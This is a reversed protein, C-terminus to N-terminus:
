TVDDNKRKSNQVNGRTNENKLNRLTRFGHSVKKTATEDDVEVWGVGDDRLFRGSESQILKVIEASVKQKETHGAQEYMTIREIVIKKLRLNGVHSYYARGRGLLVDKQGPTGVRIVHAKALKEACKHEVEKKLLQELIRRKKWRDVSLCALTVGDEMMPFGHTPIGFTQLRFVIQNRDGIHERIRVRTFLAARIKFIAFIPRWVFSDACMHIAELRLPMGTVLKAWAQNLERRQGMQQLNLQQGVLYSIHIQGKRQTEDDECYVMSAYLVTRLVARIPVDVSQPVTFVILRGARDRFPLDYGRGSYLAKLDQDDLDDQTIDRVLLDEGFLELKFEFFKTLRKAAAVPDFRDARLFKLQLTQAQVYTSDMSLAKTYAHKDEIADLQEQLMHLSGRIMEPTENVEGSVGHLDFFVKEREAMSLQALDQALLTDVDDPSASDENTTFVDDRRFLAINDDDDSSLDSIAYESPLTLEGKFEVDFSDLVNATISESRAQRKESRSLEENKNNCTVQDLDM